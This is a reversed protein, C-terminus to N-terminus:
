KAIEKILNAIRQKDESCLDKITIKASENTNTQYEEMKISRSSNKTQQNQSSNVNLYSSLPVSKKPYQKDLFLIYWEFLHSTIPLLFSTLLGPKTWNLNQSM